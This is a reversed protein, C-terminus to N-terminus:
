GYCGKEVPQYVVYLLGRLGDFEGAREWTVAIRNEGSRCFAEIDAELNWSDYRRCRRFADPPLARGNISVRADGALTESECLLRLGETGGDLMFSASFEAPAPFVGPAPPARDFIPRAVGELLHPWTTGAIDRLPRYRFRGRAVGGITVDWDKLVARAEIGPPHLYDWEPATEYALATRGPAPPCAYAPADLPKARLELLAAGFGAVAVRWLGNEEPARERLDRDADYVYVGGAPADALALTLVVGEAQNNYLYLIRGDFARKLYAMVRRAKGPRVELSFGDRGRLADLGAIDAVVRAGAERLRKAVKPADGDLSAFPLVLTDYTRRGVTFRGDAVPAALLADEDAIEFQLHRDFLDQVRRYYAERLRLAADREAPLRRLFMSAPHLLCLGGEAEAMGLRHGLRAAYDSFRHFEPYDPDQFFFSKGADDKRWGDYSYHFAHPVLWNVGLAYLWHTVKRMGEPGFNYPNCAFCESQVRPIGRQSAASAVLKGGLNLSFFKEGDPINFTIHDFGPIGVHEQLAYTNGGNTLSLPDEEGISHGCLAIGHERCWDNVPRFFSEIFLERVTRWYAERLTRAEENAGAFLQHYRGELAFGRRRAFEEPLRQTWPLQPGASTEDTFIGGLTRLREDGLAARYREHTLQIFARACDPNLNDPLSGYKEDGRHVVAVIARVRWGPELTTDLALRPRFTEARYHPYPTDPWLQAYYASDWRCALFLERLVGVRCAVDRTEAVEGADDLRVALAELLRGAGLDARVRGDADPVAEHFVLKRAAWDPNDMMLRGGAAGSPFPDEDYLWAKMGLANAADVAHRVLDFFDDSGYPIKLGARPHIFFALVRQERMLRLQRDIEDKEVRHNWFWFPTPRYDDPTLATSGEPSAPPPPPMFDAEDATTSMFYRKLAIDNM